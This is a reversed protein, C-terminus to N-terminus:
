LSFFRLKTQYAGKSFGRLASRLFQKTSADDMISNNVVTSSLRLIDQYTNGKKVKDSYDASNVNLYKGVLKTSLSSDAPITHVVGVVSGPKISVSRGELQLEFYAVYLEANVCVDLKESPCGNEDLKVVFGVICQTKDPTHLLLEKLKCVLEADIQVTSPIKSEEFSVVTFEAEAVIDEIESMITNDNEIDGNILSVDNEEDYPRKKPNSKVTEDDSPQYVDEGDFTLSLQKSLMPVDSNDNNTAPVHESVEENSNDNANSCDVITEDLGLERDSQTAFGEDEDDEQLQKKPTSTYNLTDCETSSCILNEVSHLKELLTKLCKFLGDCSGKEKIKILMEKTKSPTNEILPNFKEFNLILSESDKNKIEIMNDSVLEVSQIPGFAVKLQKPKSNPSASMPEIVKQGQNFYFPELENKYKLGEKVIFTYVSKSAM